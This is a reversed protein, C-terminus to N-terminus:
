KAGVIAKVGDWAWGIILGALTIPNTVVNVLLAIIILWGFMILVCCGFGGCTMAIIKQRMKKDTVITKVAKAKNGTALQVAVKTAEQKTERLSEAKDPKDRGDAVGAPGAKSDQKAERFQGAQASSDPEGGSFDDDLAEDDSDSEDTEGGRNLLQEDLAM